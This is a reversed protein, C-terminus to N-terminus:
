FYSLDAIVEGISVITPNLAFQNLQFSIGRKRWFQAFSTLDMKCITAIAQSSHSGADVKESDVSIYELCKRLHIMRHNRLPSM